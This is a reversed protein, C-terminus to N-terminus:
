QHADTRTAQRWNPTTENNLNWQAFLYWGALGLLVVAAVGCIVFILNRKIWSMNLSASLSFQPFRFHSSSSGAKQARNEAQDKM